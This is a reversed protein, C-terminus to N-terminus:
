GEGLRALALPSPVPYSSRYSTLPCRILDACVWGFCATLRLGDIACDGKRSGEGRAKALTPSPSPTLAVDGAAHVGPRESHLDRPIEFLREVFREASRSM